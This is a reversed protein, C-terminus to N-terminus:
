KRAKSKSGKKNKRKPSAKKKSKSSSKSPTKKRGSTAKKQKKGSSPSKKSATKSRKKSQSSSKKKGSGRMYLSRPHPPSDKYRASEDANARVIDGQSSNVVLVDAASQNPPSADFIVSHTNPQNNLVSRKAPETGGRDAGEHTLIGAEPDVGSMLEIGGINKYFATYM